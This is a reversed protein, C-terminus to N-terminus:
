RDPTGPEPLDVRCATALARRADEVRGAAVLPVVSETLLRDWDVHDTPTGATLLARRAEDLLGAVTALEVEPSAAIQTRLWRALAPATGGTSVAVTVPGDRHVAPLLFDGRDAGAASNALVGAGRADRLVARDVEDVGTATLVLDYEAAEGPRYPRREARLTAPPDATLDVLADSLEPAVLTVSGGAALLGLTRRAAVPGGGVVLCRRGELRLVVPYGGRVADSGGGGAGNM